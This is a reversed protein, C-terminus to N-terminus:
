MTCGILWPNFEEIGLGQAESKSAEGSALRLLRAFIRLGAEHVTERGEFITGANLDMDAEMREYMPTNTAIKLVPAPKFGFCSGRGTTFVVLNCGGAVQGTTSVPDYGPTDMYVFGPGAIPEAYQYVASLPASGGKAVAGLSKEFITTLGGDKNGPAPNNDITFGSRATYDKWWAIRELLRAAVEPNVARRTLLHEAGYIEPTESLVSTGGHRVIEDSCVGLAPNATIGSLGDSGGCQMGVVLKSAPQTTREQAAVRPLLRAVADVGQDIAAQTGGVEQMIVAPPREGPAAELQLLGGTEIFDAMQNGECGLGVLVYAGVNPHRAFGALTRQLLELEWGPKGGCGGKHVVPLVGDFNSHEREVGEFRRAIAVAVNAACNVTSVVALYNRTGVRGDSRQYGAFSAREAAPLLPFPTAESGVAYDLQLEGAGFGLNHTHVWDGPAIPATAFGIIQGYKRVPAGVNVAGLALKHGRPVEQRVEIVRDAAALRLGAPLDERAVAVHDHPHLQLALESLAASTM